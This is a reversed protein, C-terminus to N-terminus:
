LNKITVSTVARAVCRLAAECFILVASFIAVFFSLFCMFYITRSPLVQGLFSPWTVRRAIDDIIKDTSTVGLDSLFM